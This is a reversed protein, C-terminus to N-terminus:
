QQEVIMKLIIKASDRYDSITSELKHLIIGSGEYEGEKICGMASYWLAAPYVSSTSDISSLIKVAEAHKNSEMLCIGAYLNIIEKQYISDSPLQNIQTQNSEMKDLYSKYAGRNYLDLFKGALSSDPIAYKEIVPSHISLPHYFENYLKNNSSPTFQQVVLFLLLAAAAAVVSYQIFRKVKGRSKFRRQADLLMERQAKQAEIEKAGLTGRAIFHIAALFRKENELLEALEEDSKLDNEFAVVEEPTMEASLYRKIREYTPSQDEM